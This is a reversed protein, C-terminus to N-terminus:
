EVNRRQIMADFERILDLSEERRQELLIYALTSDDAKEFEDHISNFYTQLIEYLAAAQHESLPLNM